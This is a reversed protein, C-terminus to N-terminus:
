SPPTFQRKITKRKEPPVMKDVYEKIEGDGYARDVPQPLEMGKLPVEAYWGGEGVKWYLYYGRRKKCNICTLWAAGWIVDGPKTHSTFQGLVEENGASEGARVYDDSLVRTPIPFPQPGFPMNETTYKYPNTLDMLAFSISPKNAVSHKTPNSYVYYLREKGYFTFRLDSNLSNDEEKPPASGHEPKSFQAILTKLQDDTLPVIGIPSAPVIRPNADSSITGMDRARAHRGHTWRIAEVLLVGFLAFLCGSIIIRKLAGEQTTMGWITITSGVMVASFIFCGVAFRFEGKTKADMALTTGLGLLLTILGLGVAVATAVWFEFSLDPMSATRLKISAQPKSM